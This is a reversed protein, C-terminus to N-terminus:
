KALLTRKERSARMTFLSILAWRQFMGQAEMRYPNSTGQDSAGELKSAEPPWPHDGSGLIRFPWPVTVPKVRM